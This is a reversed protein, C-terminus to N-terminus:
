NKSYSGKEVNGNQDTHKHLQSVNIEDMESGDSWDSDSESLATVATRHAPTRSTSHIRQAKVTTSYVQPAKKQTQPPEEESEEEEESTEEDSSFPPTRSPHSVWLGCTVLFYVALCQHTQTVASPVYKHQLPTSTKPLTRSRPTPQPTQQPKPAPGSLVRTM